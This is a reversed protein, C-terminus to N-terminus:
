EGGIALRAGVYFARGPAPEFYRGGFANVTVAANYEADFLNSVGAFPAVDVAGFRVRDLGARLDTVRYRASFAENADDVPTRSVRRHDVGAFWGAPSRYTLALDFRFPAVGPVRNGDHVADGVAYTEFRADTLTYAIRATWRRRWAFTVSAEIGRHVVSGANRFFQRGEAGPVEFPILADVVRARYAALRYAAVDGFRGKVGAEFSRTRQPELAPNFGGAGSPRNALETTTPTEFSTAVNAYVRARADLDVLVGFSPSLADMDRRGSDDPSGGAVLRDETQFRFRDYRIGGLLHLRAGLPASLQAFVGAATVTELQDLTLAGRAGDVNDHNRRDDRQREAEVGVSWRVERGGLPAVAHLIARVGGAVRDVDIITPPIPNELRKAVGYASLELAGAGVAQRWSAGLRGEVAEEGTRQSRNFGHAQTRDEALQAASLAGPNRADYRTFGGVFRLEGAGTRYRLQGNARLRGAGSWDRHGDTSLHSISLRYAADGRVGETTSALRLMGDAGAVAELTQRLPVAAPAATELQLVGGAANGWLASAPGRVLEVRGVVGPDVHSLSTQGDPLTAPIGDVVVKVGRVGFQSRAGFGRISVREGLAFNYRNDVQVGAVGRFAEDLGLAPRARDAADRTLAEVAYPADALRTPTRLVTVTLSDLALVAATDAPPTQAPLPGAGIPFALAAIVAARLGPTRM